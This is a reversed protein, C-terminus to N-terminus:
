VNEAVYRARRIRLEDLKLAAFAAVGAVIGIEASGSLLRAGVTVALVTLVLVVTALVPRRVPSM